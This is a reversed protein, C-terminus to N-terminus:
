EKIKDGLQQLEPPIAEGAAKKSGILERVVDEVCGYCMKLKDLEIFDTNDPLKCVPCDKPPKKGNRAVVFRTLIDKFSNFQNPDDWSIEFGRTKMMKDAVKEQLLRKATLDKQMKHRNIGRNIMRYLEETSMLGDLQSMLDNIYKKKENIVQKMKNEELENTKKEEDNNIFETELKTYSRCLQKSNKTANSLKDLYKNSKICAVIDFCEWSLSDIDNRYKMKNPLQNLFMGNDKKEDMVIVTGLYPNRYFALSQTDDTYRFMLDEPLWTRRKFNKACSQPICAILDKVPKDERSTSNVFVCGLAVYGPPPIPKWITLAKYTPDQLEKNKLLFDQINLTITDYFAQLNPLGTQNISFNVLDSILDINTTNNEDIIGPNIMLQYTNVSLLQRGHEGTPSHSVLISHYNVDEIERNGSSIKDLYVNFDKINDGDDDYFRGNIKVGLIHQTDITDNTPLLNHEDNDERDNRYKPYSGLIHFIKNYMKYYPETYNDGDTPTYSPIINLNTFKFIYTYLQKKIFCDANTIEKKIENVIIPDFTKLLNDFVLDNPQQIKDTIDIKVIEFKIYNNNLPIFKTVINKTKQRPMVYPNIAVPQASSKASNIQQNIFVFVNRKNGGQLYRVDPSDFYSKPTTGTTINYNKYIEIFNNVTDQNLPQINYYDAIRYLQDAFADFLFKNMFNIRTIIKNFTNCADKFNGVINQKLTGIDSQTQFINDMIGNGFSGVYIYDEPSKLEAGMVVMTDLEKDNNAGPVRTKRINPIMEFKPSVFSRTLVDGVPKYGELASPRWISIPCDKLLNEAGNNISCQSIDTPFSKGKNAYFVSLSNRNDWIKGDSAFMSSQKSKILLKIEDFGEITNNKYYALYVWYLIVLVILSTIIIFHIKEM